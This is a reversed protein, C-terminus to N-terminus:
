TDIVMRILLQAADNSLRGPLLTEKRQRACVALLEGIFGARAAPAMGGAGHRVDHVDICLGHGRGEAGATHSPDDVSMGMPGTHVLELDVSRPCM